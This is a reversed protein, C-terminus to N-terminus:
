GARLGRILTALCIAFWIAIFPTFLWKAVRRQDRMWLEFWEDKSIQGLAFKACLAGTL